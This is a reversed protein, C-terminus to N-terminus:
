ASLELLGRRAIEDAHDAIYHSTKNLCVYKDVRSVWIQPLLHDFGCVSFGESGVDPLGCSVREDTLHRIESYERAGNLCICADPIVIFIHFFTHSSQVELAAFFTDRGLNHM